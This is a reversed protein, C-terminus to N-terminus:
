LSIEAKYSTYIEPLDAKYINERTSLEKYINSNRFLHLASDLSLGDGNVLRSIVYVTADELSIKMLGSTRNRKREKKNEEYWRLFDTHYHERAEKLTEEAESKIQFQGLFYLKDKYHIQVKWTNSTENYSLGGRKTLLYGQVYYSEYWDKFDDIHTKAEKLVKEADEKTEYLGLYYLKGQISGQVAWGNKRRHINGWSDVQVRRKNGNGSIGGKPISRKTTEKKRSKKESCYATYWEEFNDIHQMAELKVAIADNRDIFSGLTYRKGNYAFRVLWKDINKYYYIGENRQKEDEIKKCLGAYWIDFDKSNIHQLAVKCINVAEQEDEYMGLDKIRKGCKLFARYKKQVKNYEVCDTWTNKEIRRLEERNAKQIAKLNEFWEIFDGKEIHHLAENRVAVAEDMTEFVGLRYNRGKYVKYCMWNEGHPRVGEPYIKNRKYFKQKNENYWSIFDGAEIHKAAEGCVHLGETKLTHYGLGYTKYDYTITARFKKLNKDLYCRGADTKHKKQPRSVKELTAPKARDKARIKKRDDYWELFDGSEKHLDAEKRIMIADEIDSYLGLYYAKNQFFIGSEWKNKSRFVGPHEFSVSGIHQTHFDAYWEPLDGAKVHAEAQERISVAEDFDKYSGLHYNQGKSYISAIWYGKRKNLFVGKRKKETM